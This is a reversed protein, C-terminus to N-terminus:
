RSIANVAWYAMSGSICIFIIVVAVRFFWHMFADDGAAGHLKADFWGITGEIVNYLRRFGDSFAAKTKAAKGHSVTTSSEKRDTWDKVVDGSRTRQTTSARPQSLSTQVAPGYIQGCSACRWPQRNSQFCAILWIPLWLGCVLFTILLHLIHNPLETESFHLTLKNCNRCFLQSHERIAPM